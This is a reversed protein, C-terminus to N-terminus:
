ATIWWMNHAKRLAPALHQYKARTENPQGIERVFTTELKRSDAEPLSASPSEAVVSSM